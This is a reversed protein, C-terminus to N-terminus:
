MLPLARTASSFFSAMSCSSANEFKLFNLVDTVIRGPKLSTGGSCCRGFHTCSREGHGGSRVSFDAIDLHRSSVNGARSLEIALGEAPINALSGIAAGRKVVCGALDAAGPHQPARGQGGWAEHDVDHDIADFRGDARDDGGTPLDHLGDPGIRGFDRGPKAIGATIDNTEILFGFPLLLARFYRRSPALIEHAHRNM